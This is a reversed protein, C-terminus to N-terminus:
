IRTDDYGDKNFDRANVLMTEEDVAEDDDDEEVLGTDVRVEVEYLGEDEVEASWERVDVYAKRNKKNM